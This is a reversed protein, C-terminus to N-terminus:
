RPQRHAMELTAIDLKGMKLRAHCVQYAAIREYKATL